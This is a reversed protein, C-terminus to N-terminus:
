LRGMNKPVRRSYSQNKRASLVEAVPISDRGHIYVDLVAADLVEHHAARIATDVQSFPGVIICKLEVLLEHLILLILPNNEVVLIRRGSLISQAGM